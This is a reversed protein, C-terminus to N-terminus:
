GNSNERKHQRHWRRGETTAWSHAPCYRQNPSWRPTTEGCVTCTISHREWNVRAMVFVVANTNLLGVEGFLSIDPSAEIIIVDVDAWADLAKRLRLSPPDGSLLLRRFGARLNKDGLAKASGYYTNFQDLLEQAVKRHEEFSPVYKHAIRTQGSKDAM